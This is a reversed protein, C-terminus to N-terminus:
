KSVFRRELPGIFRREDSWDTIAFVVKKFRGQFIPNDVLHDYFWRAVDAPDNRSVGCGWAGLILTDHGHVVAVSLLKEMREINTPAIKDVNHPENRRVTGANVAPATLFSACYPEDLLVGDDDRIVPVRPSYIM